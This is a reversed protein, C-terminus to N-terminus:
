TQRASSSKMKKLTLLFTHMFVKMLYVARLNLPNNQGECSLNVCVIHCLVFINRVCFKSDILLCCNYFISSIAFPVAPLQPSHLVDDSQLDEPNQDDEDTHSNTPKTTM